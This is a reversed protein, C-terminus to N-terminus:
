AEIRNKNELIDNCITEIDEVKKCITKKYFSSDANVLNIRIQSTQLNIEALTIQETIKIFISYETAAEYINPLSEKLKSFLVNYLDVIKENKNQLYSSITKANSDLMSKSDREAMEDEILEPSAERSNKMFYLGLLEYKIENKFSFGWRQEMFGLLKLGRELISNPTWNKEKAVEMESYCGNAYGRTRKENGNKKSEFEDNQLSSNVSQSLPLLNGLSNALCRQEFANYDRFQNRWYWKTPTQPFIHEISIKDKENKTFNNWDNLKKVFTEKSLSDEYEFLFYQIDSWSYYGNGNKFSNSIRVYFSNTAEEINVNFKEEFYNIIEDIMTEDKILQRAYSYSNNSLYSSQYRAMRFALFIFKEITEFLKLRQKEVVNSNAYSAVVLTRFYNIGIRNLRDIWIKEQNTFFSCQNPNFSFYWYQALSKLSNIYDQIDKPMLMVDSYDDDGDLPIHEDDFNEEQEETSAFPRKIGFIAKPNFYQNLLFRIYDDGKNRTYKFYMTWHNKLYEDDDLPRNKNRGLQFYVEKWCDNINKRLAAKEDDSLINTPYLTTLYILRNKLLELNSLKKGRNNMTEFAVFVDFDDDIYHINFQLKNVLKRLLKELGLCGKENFLNNVKEDFFNKANELNLTYFTETLSGSSGEGLVKYRLFEFSPNDTEYGFKFAKLLGNPKNYEVIYESRIDDITDYNLDEINHSKACNLISNLLIIFTTLRQQGDVVHYAEYGKNELIWKEENWTKYISRDLKKLSLMGTYHFRDETLNSLDDWFDNLQSIGWAYGRQYDPIRFIRKDFLKSLSILDSM